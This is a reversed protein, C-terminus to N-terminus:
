EQERTKEIIEDIDFLVIQARFRIKDIEEIGKSSERYSERLRGIEDCIESQRKRIQNLDEVYSDDANAM